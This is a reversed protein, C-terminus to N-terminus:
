EHRDNTTDNLPVGLNILEKLYQFYIAATDDDFWMRAGICAIQRRILTWSDFQYFPSQGRVHLLNSGTTTIDTPWAKGQNFLNQLGVLCDRFIKQLERATLRREMTLITKYTLSFAESPWEVTSRLSFNPYIKLDRSFAYPAREVELRLHLLLNFVRFKRAIVHVKKHQFSRFCGKEHKAVDNISCSCLSDFLAPSELTTQRITKEPTLAESSASRPIARDKNFNSWSKELSSFRKQISRELNSLSEDLTHTISPGM